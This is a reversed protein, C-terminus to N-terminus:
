TTWQFCACSHQGLHFFIFYFINVIGGTALMNQMVVSVSNVTALSYFATALFVVVSIWSLISESEKRFMEIILSIIIGAGIIVLPLINYFEQINNLM